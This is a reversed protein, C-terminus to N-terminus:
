CHVWTMGLRMWTFVPWLVDTVMWSFLTRLAIHARNLYVTVGPYIYGWGPLCHGRSMQLSMWTLLSRLFGYTWGHLCHVWTTGRRMWTSPHDWSLLVDTVDYPTYIIEPCRYSLWQFCQGLANVVWDLHVIGKHCKRGLIDVQYIIVWSRDVHGWSM